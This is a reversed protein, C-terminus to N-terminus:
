EGGKTFRVLEQIERYLLKDGVYRSIEERIIGKQPAYWLSKRIDVGSDHGTTLLRICSFTGAPVTIDERAIVDTNRVISETETKMEPFATGPKMGAILFPIPQQFWILRVPETEVLSGLLSIVEDRIEVFEKLTPSGPIVVDFCQAEKLEPSPKHTGIYTRTMEYERNVEEPNQQNVGAPINLKVAYVWTDGKQVSLLPTDKARQARDADTSPVKIQDQEAKKESFGALALVFWIPLLLIINQKM